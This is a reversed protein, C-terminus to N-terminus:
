IWRRRLLAENLIFRELRRDLCIRGRERLRYALRCVGFGYGADLRKDSRKVGAVVSAISKCQEGKDRIVREM